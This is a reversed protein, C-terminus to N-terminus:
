SHSIDHFPNLYVRLFSAILSNYSLLKLYIHCQQVLSKVATLHSSFNYTIATMTGTTRLCIYTMVHPASSIRWLTVAAVLHEKLNATASL